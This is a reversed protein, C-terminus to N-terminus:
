KSLLEQCEAIKGGSLSAPSTNSKTAESLNLTANTLKVQAILFAEYDFKFQTDPVGTEKFLEYCVPNLLALSKDAAYTESCVQKAARTAESTRAAQIQRNQYELEAYRKEALVVECLLREVNRKNVEQRDEAGDIFEQEAKADEGSLFQSKTTFYKWNDGTARNLCDEANKIVATGFLNKWDKIEDAFKEAKSMDNAELAALCANATDPKSQAVVPSSHLCISALAAVLWAGNPTLKQLM